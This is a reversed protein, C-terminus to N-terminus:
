FRWPRCPWIEANWKENSDLVQSAQHPGLAEGHFIWLQNQHSDRMVLLHSRVPTHVNLVPTQAKAKSGGRNQKLTYTHTQTDEEICILIFGRHFHPLSSARQLTYKLKKGGHQRVEKTAWMCMCVPVQRKEAVWVFCFCCLHHTKCISAFRYHYWFQLPSM